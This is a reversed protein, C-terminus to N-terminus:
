WGPPPRPARRGPPRGRNRARGGRAGWPTEGLARAYRDAANPSLAARLLRFADKRIKELPGDEGDESLFGLARGISGGSLAVAKDRADPAADTERELFARVSKRPLPALHISTTRSRITPLLRGPESSTLVIWSDPPPEELTKLLANAAEQASEQTVLEEADGVVFLRRPALAPRRSAERRLARITGFYLGRVEDTYTARLPEERREAIRELRAEELAEEDRDKSGKSLPKKFPFYWHLDPHQLSLAMRCDKCEGCPADLTPHQCLILQGLWLALRQKGIGAPGHLLLAAPLRGAFFVRALAERTDEHGHLSHLPKM